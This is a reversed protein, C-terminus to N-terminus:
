QSLKNVLLRSSNLINVSEDEGIKNRLDEQAQKWLPLAQQYKKLGCESLTIIKIRKDQHHLELTLFGDRILPKLNRSLTTQDLVLAEQLRKNTTQKMLYIARIIAFQGVKLGATLLREEYFQNILRCSKRLALNYCKEFKLVM